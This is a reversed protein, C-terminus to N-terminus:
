TDAEIKMVRPAFPHDRSEANFSPYGAGIAMAEAAFSAALLALERPFSYGFRGDLVFEVEDDRERMMLNPVRRGDVVVSYGTEPPGKMENIIDITPRFTHVNDSM